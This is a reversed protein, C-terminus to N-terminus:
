KDNDIEKIKNKEENLIQIMLDYAEDITDCTKFYKDLEILESLFMKREFIYAIIDEQKSQIILYQKESTIGILITFNKNNYKFKYEASKIIIDKKLFISLNGPTSSALSPVPAEM